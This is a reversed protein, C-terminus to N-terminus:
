SSFFDSASQPHHHYFIHFPISSNKMACGGFSISFLWWGPRLRVLELPSSSWASDKPRNHSFTPIKPFFPFFNSWRWPTIWFNPSYVLKHQWQFNPFIILQSVLPPLLNEAGTPHDSFCSVASIAWLKSTGVRAGKMTTVNFERVFILPKTFYPYGLDDM